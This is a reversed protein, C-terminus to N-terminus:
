VKIRKIELKTKAFNLILGIRLGTVKLYSILQGIHIDNIENVAKVEVLVKNEIVFDIIQYGIRVKGYKIGIKVERKFEIGDRQLELYLARQYLKEPLGPGLGEHVKIALGIARETLKSHLYQESMSVERVVV